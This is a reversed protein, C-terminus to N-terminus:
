RPSQLPSSWHAPRLQNSVRAGITIAGCSRLSPEFRRRRHNTVVREVASSSRLTRVPDRCAGPPRMGAKRTHQGGYAGLGVPRVPTRQEPRQRGTCSEFRRGSRSPLLGVAPRVPRSQRPLHLSFRPGGYGRPQRGTTCMRTHRESCWTPRVPPASCRRAVRVPSSGAGGPAVIRREEM